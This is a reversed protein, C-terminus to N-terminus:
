SMSVDKLVKIAYVVRNPQGQIPLNHATVLSNFGSCRLVEEIAGAILSDSCFSEHCSARRNFIPSAEYLLYTDRQDECIEILRETQYLSPLLTYAVRYILSDIDNERRFDQILVMRKGMDRGLAKLEDEPDNKGRAIYKLAGCLYFQLLDDRM